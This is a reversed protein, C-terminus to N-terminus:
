DDKKEMKDSLFVALLGFLGGCIFYALNSDFLYACISGYVTSAILIAFMSAWSIKSKAKM